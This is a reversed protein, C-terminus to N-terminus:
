KIFNNRFFIAVLNCSTSANFQTRLLELHKEITKFSVAIAKASKGNAVEQVIKIQHETANM